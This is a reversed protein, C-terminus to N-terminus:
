IWTPAPVRSQIYMADMKVLGLKGWKETERKFMSLSLLEDDCVISEVEYVKGDNAYKTITLLWVRNKRVFKGVKYYYAIITIAKFSFWVVVMTAIMLGIGIYTNM